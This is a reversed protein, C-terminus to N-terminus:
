RKGFVAIGNMGHFRIMSYFQSFSNENRKKGKRREKKKKERAMIPNFGIITTLLRPIM